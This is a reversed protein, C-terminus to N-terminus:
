DMQIIYVLYYKWSKIYKSISLLVLIQLIHVQSFGGITEDFNNDISNEIIIKKHFIKFLKKIENDTLANNVIDTNNKMIHTFLKGSEKQFLTKQRNRNWILVLIGNVKIIRKFEIIAKNKDFWHFAQAVTILDISNDPLGTSEATGNISNYNSYQSYLYDSMERMNKNPEISYVINGNELFIKSLKGTGSGIDGIITNNSFGYELLYELIDKSYGPRYKEYIKEKETYKVVNENM